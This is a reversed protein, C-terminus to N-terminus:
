KVLSAALNPARLGSHNLTALRVFTFQKSNEGDYELYGRIALMNINKGNEDKLNLFPWDVDPIGDSQYDGFYYCLGLVVIILIVGIITITDEDLDFDLKTLDLDDFFDM